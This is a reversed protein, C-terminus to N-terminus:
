SGETISLSMGIGKGFGLGVALNNIYSGFLYGSGTERMIGVAMGLALYKPTFTPESDQM